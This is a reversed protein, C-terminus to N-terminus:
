PEHVCGIPEEHVDARKHLRLDIRTKHLPQTWIMLFLSFDDFAV